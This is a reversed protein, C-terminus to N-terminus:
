GPKRKTKQTLRDMKLSAEEFSRLMDDFATVESSDLNVPKVSQLAQVHDAAVAPAATEAQPAIQDNDDDMSADLEAEYTSADTKGDQILNRRYQLFSERTFVYPDLAAENIFNVAGEANARENIGELVGVFPVYSGPNAARDFIVGSGDRVTTPGMIPLVLYNSSEVGWVALTQGFDEINNHLGFESAVDFLGGVGLTTNTLFRGADAGAQQLKGQLVDNLVVNIGRLNSFFNTVGTEVFDPTIFKYGDAVPKFVHKDLSMNFSYMPRNFSEYPDIQNASVSTGNETTSEVRNETSACAALMMSSTILLLQASTARKKRKYFQQFM